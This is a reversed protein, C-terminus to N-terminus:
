AANRVRMALESVRRVSARKERVEAEVEALKQEAAACERQATASADTNRHGRAADQTRRRAESIAQV